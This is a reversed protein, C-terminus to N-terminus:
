GQEQHSQEHHPAYRRQDTPTGGSHTAGDRDAQQLGRRQGEDHRRRLDAQHEPLDARHGGRRQDTGPQERDEQEREPREGQQAALVNRRLPECMCGCLGNYAGCPTTAVLWGSAAEAPSAASRRPPLATTAADKFFMVSATTSGPELSMPPSRNAITQSPPRSHPSLAEPREGAASVRSRRGRLPIGTSPQSGTVTGPAGAPHRSRCARYPRSGKASRNVSAIPYAAPPYGTEGVTAAPQCRSASRCSASVPGSYASHARSNPRGGRAPSHNALGSAARVSSRM